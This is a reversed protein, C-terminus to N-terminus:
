LQFNIAKTQAVMWVDHGEDRCEYLSQIRGLNIFLLYQFCVRSMGLSSAQRQWLIDSYHDLPLWLKISFTFKIANKQQYSNGPKIRTFSEEMTSTKGSCDNPETLSRMSAPPAGPLTASSSNSLPCMQAEPVKEDSIFTPKGVSEWFGGDGENDPIDKQCQLVEM